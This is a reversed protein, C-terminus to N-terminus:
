VGIIQAVEETDCSSADIASTKGFKAAVDPFKIGAATSVVVVREGPNILGRYFADKLGALATGTQPCVFHGDSGAVSVAEILARESASIIAGDSICIERMVKRYSVPNGIRAATAVTEGLDNQPFYVRRWQDADVKSAGAMKSAVAWSRALPDAAESQVGLIRAIHNVFGLDRLTRMGKGISSTDSGNGVPVVFWDPMQWDFFQVALFVTAQHGEIRSPNISNAPFIRGAAVLEEVIHMCDDFSGPITIVKAGYAIPQALQVATVQGRPLIVVVTMGAAAGYASAMASTDGTSACGLAKVGSAKAVSIMVTGGFDKFSGTPTLGEPMIWLDLDGGIWNRLNKGAPWMPMIGEGLTVIDDVSLSPMVLEHFRWVGSQTLVNSPHPRCRSDFIKKWRQVHERAINFNHCVDYLGGCSCRFQVTGYLPVTAHCQMCRLVSVPLSSTM